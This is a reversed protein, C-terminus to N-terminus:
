SNDLNGGHDTNTFATFPSPPQNTAEASYEIRYDLIGCIYQMLHKIARWHKPGPCANFRCLVGVAFAIDPCICMALYLLAGTAQVYPVNRMAEVDEPTALADAKSLRVSQELPTTVAKCDLMNFQSLVEIAYARQDIWLKRNAHDCTVVVGLLGTTLGLHRLKFFKQLETIVKLIAPKSKSALTMDNVHIPVIIQVGDCIYVYVCPDSTICTFGLQLFVEHMCKHWLNAGQKLGYLGKQLRVCPEGDGPQREIDPPVDEPFGEPFKMYLEADVVGPLFVSSIDISELHM